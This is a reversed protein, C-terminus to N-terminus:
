EAVELRGSSVVEGGRRLTFRWRRDEGETEVDLRDGPGVTRRFRLGTLVRLRAPRGRRESLAQLVLGIQAIAPLIPKGPFHGAFAPADEPIRVTGDAEVPFPRMVAIM